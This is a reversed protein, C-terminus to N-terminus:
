GKKEIAKELRCLVGAGIIGADNGLKATVLRTNKESGRSYIMPAVRQRLPALLEEGAGSIGGGICLVEPQIINIINAIGDALDDLYQDFVGKATLDGARVAEFITKGDIASRDGACLQNLLSDPNKKAERKASRVLASASAYAAFCGRRGCPCTRGNKRIVMHGLEGASANVGSVIKGDLILGGGVGTGLTVAVMSKSGQGSGALYEAWSASKADNEAYVPCPFRDRLMRVFPVNDFGFNNAYEVSEKEQNVTGPIGIGVSEIEAFSRKQSDLLRVALRFIEDALDEPERPLGTPAQIKTEIEFKNEATERVIGVAIKTGGLDIGVYRQGM